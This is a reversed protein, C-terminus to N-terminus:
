GTRQAKVTWKRPSLGGVIRELEFEDGSGVYERNFFHYSYHIEDLIDLDYYRASYRCDKRKMKCSHERVLVRKGQMYKGRLYKEDDQRIMKAM